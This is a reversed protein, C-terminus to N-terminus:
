TSPYTRRKGGADKGKAEGMMKNLNPNYEPANEKKGAPKRGKEQPDQAM